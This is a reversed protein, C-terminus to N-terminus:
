EVKEGGTKISKWSDKVLKDGSIPCVTPKCGEKGKVLLICEGSCWDNCQFCAFKKRPEKM